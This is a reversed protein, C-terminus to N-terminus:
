SFFGKPFVGVCEGLEELHHLSHRIRQGRALSAPTGAPKNDVATIDRMGHTPRRLNCLRERTM